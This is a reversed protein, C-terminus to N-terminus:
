PQTSLQNPNINDKTKAGHNGSTEKKKTARATNRQKIERPSDVDQVDEQPENADGNPRTKGFTFM